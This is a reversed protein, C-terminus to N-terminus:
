HGGGRGRHHRSKKRSAPSTDAPAAPAAPALPPEVALMAAAAATEAVVCKATTHGRDFRGAAACLRCKPCNGTIHDLGFDGHCVQCEGLGRSDDVFAELDADLFAAELTESNESRVVACTAQLEVQKSRIQPATLHWPASFPVGGVVLGDRPAWTLGALPTFTTGVVIRTAAFEADLECIAEATYGTYASIAAILEARSTHNCSYSQGSALRDYHWADHYDPNLGTSRRAALVSRCYTSVLPVNPNDILLGAARQVLAEDVSRGAHMSIVNFKKLFRLPDMINDGNAIPNVYLRGLFVRMEGTYPEEELKCGFSAAAAIYDADHWDGLSDDGGFVSDNLAAFAAPAPMEDEWRNRLAHFLVFATTVTNCDTTDRDGSATGAGHFRHPYGRVRAGTNFYEDIVKRYQPAYKEGYARKYLAEMVARGLVQTADYASFDGARATRGEQAANRCIDHVRDQIETPTKGPAFWPLQKLRAEIPLLFSAALYNHSGKFPVIPRNPKGAQSAEAKFFLGISTPADFLQENLALFEARQSEKTLSAYIEEPGAPSGVGDVLVLSVFDVLDRAAAASMAVPACPEILRRYLVDYTSSQCKVPVTSSSQCVANHVEQVALPEVEDFADAYQVYSTLPPRTLPELTGSRLGSAVAAMVLPLAPDGPKFASALAGYTGAKAILESRVLAGVLTEKPTSCVAGTGIFTLQYSDGKSAMLVRGYRNV